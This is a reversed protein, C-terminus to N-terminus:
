RTTISPFLGGYGYIVYEGDVIEIGVAATFSYTREEESNNSEDNYSYSGYYTKINDYTYTIDIEIIFLNESLLEADTIDYSTLVFNKNEYDYNSYNTIKDELIENYTDEYNSKYYKEVASYEADTNLASIFANLYEGMFEDASNLTEASINATAEYDSYYYNTVNFTDKEDELLDHEIVIEYDGAMIYPITYVDYNQTYKISYGYIYNFSSEELEAYKESSLVVGDLTVVSGTAVKIEIDSRIYTDGLSVSWEGNVCELEIALIENNGIDFEITRFTVTEDFEEEVEILSYGDITNLNIGKDDLFEKFNDVSKIVDDSEVLKLASEYDEDILYDVVQIAVTTADDYNTTGCGSLFLSFVLILSTMKLVKKM